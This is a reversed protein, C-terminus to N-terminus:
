EHERKQNERFARTQLLLRKREFKKNASAVQKKFHRDVSAAEQADFGLVRALEHMSQANRYYEKALGFANEDILFFSETEGLRSRLIRIQVPDSLQRLLDDPAPKEGRWLSYLGIRHLLQHKKFLDYPQKLSIYRDNFFRRLSLWDAIFVGDHSGTEAYPLEYLVCPVITKDTPDVGGAQISMDPYRRLGEIQRRIQQIFGDREQRFYHSRIPHNSSLGKNKCEFVFLYQEWPVIVDIEYLNGERSADISYANFNNEKFFKMVTSEFRKGKKEFSDGLSALNSYTVVGADAYIAAPGFLTMSGDRYRLLPCDFLDVSRLNFTTKLIFLKAAEHSFGVKELAVELEGPAFKIVYKKERCEPGANLRAIESLTCYGRLWEVIRLGFHRTADYRVDIGLIMSLLAASNLENPTVIDDPLLRAERSIGTAVEHASTEFSLASYSQVM